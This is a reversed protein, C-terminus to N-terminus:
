YQAVVTALWENILDHLPKSSVLMRFIDDSEFDAAQHRFAERDVQRDFFVDILGFYLWSQVLSALAEVSCQYYRQDPDFGCRNPFSLFDQGDFTFSAVFPVKLPAIGSRAVPLHDM